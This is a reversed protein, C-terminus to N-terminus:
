ILYFVINVPFFYLPASTPNSSQLNDYNSQNLIVFFVSLASMGITNFNEDLYGFWLHGALFFGTLVIILVIFFSFATNITMRITHFLVGFAPFYLTLTYNIRLLWLLCAISSYRLFLFM